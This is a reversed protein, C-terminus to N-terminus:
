YSVVVDWVGPETIEFRIESRLVAANFDNPATFKVNGRFPFEVGQFGYYTLTITESGSSGWLTVNDPNILSGNRKFKFRIINGDGMRSFGLRGVNNKYTIKYPKETGEAEVFKDNQWKGELATEKIGPSMYHIGTGHRNGNKWEGQYYEGNAWTYKGSGHPLGKKFSGEYKDTGYSVGNGHALGKKCDGEYKGAINDLLVKCNEVQAFATFVFGQFVIIICIFKLMNCKM